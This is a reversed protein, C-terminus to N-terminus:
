MSVRVWEDKRAGEKRECAQRHTAHPAFLVLARRELVPRFIAVDHGDVGVQAVVPRVGSPHTVGGGHLRVVVAVVAM